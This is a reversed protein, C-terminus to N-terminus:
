AAECQASVTFSCQSRGGSAASGVRSGWRKAKVAVLEDSAFEEADAFCM